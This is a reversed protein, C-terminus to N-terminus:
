FNNSSNSARLGVMEPSPDKLLHHSNFELLEKNFGSSNLAVVFEWVIIAVEWVSVTGLGFMLAFM